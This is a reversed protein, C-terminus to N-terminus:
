RFSRPSSSVDGFICMPSSCFLLPVSHDPRVHEGSGGCRLMRTRLLCVRDVACRLRSIMEDGDSAGSGHAAAGLSSVDRASMSPLALSTDSPAGPRSSRTSFSWTISSEGGNM